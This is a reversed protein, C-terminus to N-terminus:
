GVRVIELKDEHKVMKFETNYRRNYDRIRKKVLYDHYYDTENKFMFFSQGIEMAKFPFPTKVGTRLAPRDAKGKRVLYADVLKKGQSTCDQLRYM